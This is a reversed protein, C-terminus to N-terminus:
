LTITFTLTKSIKFLRFNKNYFLYMVCKMINEFNQLNPNGNDLHSDFFEKGIFYKRKVNQVESECQRILYRYRQTWDM